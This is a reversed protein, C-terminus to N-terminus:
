RFSRALHWCLGQTSITATNALFLAKFYIIRVQEEAEKIEDRSMGREAKKDRKLRGPMIDWSNLPGNQFIKKIDGKSLSLGSKVKGESKAIETAQIRYKPIAALCKIAESYNNWAFYYQGLFLSQNFGSTPVLYWNKLIIIINFWFIVLPVFWCFHPYHHCRSGLPRGSKAGEESLLSVHEAM